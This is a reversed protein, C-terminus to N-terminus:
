KGYVEQMATIADQTTILYRYKLLDYVNINGMRLVKVNPINRAALAVNKNEATLLVLASEAVGLKDLLGAMQKTKPESFSLKDLIILKNESVKAALASILAARKEKKPISYSYDRPMPGFITGGHRWLPSRSSGARARGTGKQKFPKKGGGSVLGKTKTAATGARRNALQNVVATHLVHPKIEAGFLAPLEVDKVKKNSMDVMAVSAM